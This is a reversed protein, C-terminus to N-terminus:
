ARFYLLLAFNLVALVQGALVMLLPTIAYRKAYWVLGGVMLSLATVSVAWQIWITKRGKRERWKPPWGKEDALLRRRHKEREAM